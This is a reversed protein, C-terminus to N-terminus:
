GFYSAIGNTRFGAQIIRARESSLPFREATVEIFQTLAVGVSSDTGKIKPLVKQLLQEDLADEWPVKHAAAATAYSAIEDLVRYTFPAVRALIDWLALLDEAYPRDRLHHAIDERRAEIELLQARDYVKDAFGHTTEDVNVTGVVFLNPTLDVTDGPGLSLTARGQRARLEMASLFNAFYYEVRALNMEDLIVHYPQALQGTDATEQWAHAAALLFRTFATHHYTDTLPNHYGLLDENSNWNPAVPVVLHHGNIADAYATALWTKGTGSLGSLIVFGRTKLSLHYRRLTRPDLRLGASEVRTTIETLSPEQYSRPASAVDSPAVEGIIESSKAPPNPIPLPYDPDPIEEDLDQRLYAVIAPWHFRAWPSRRVKAAAKTLLSAHSSQLRPLVEAMATDAITLGLADPMSKPGWNSAVGDGRQIEALEAATIAARDIWLDVQNPRFCLVQIGGVNLKPAPDSQRLTTSWSRPSVQHAIRISTAMQSLCRRRVAADPYTAEVIRQVEVIDAGLPKITDDDAPQDWRKRVDPDDFDFTTSGDSTDAILAARINALATDLNTAGQAADLFAAVIKKKQAESAIREFQDPFFLHLLVHQSQTWSGLEGAAIKETLQVALAPDFSTSNGQKVARAYRLMFAIHHAQGSLYFTGPAGIGQAFSQNLLAASESSLALASERWSVVTKILEHKRKSTVASESPFLLYLTLADGAVRVVDDPQTALQDHLRELSTKADSRPPQAIAALLADINAVTWARSEPWLLSSDSLLCRERFRNATAYVADAGPFRAMSTERAPWPPTM